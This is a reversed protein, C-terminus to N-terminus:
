VLGTPKKRDIEIFDSPPVINLSKRQSAFLYFDRCCDLTGPGSLTSMYPNEKIPRNGCRERAFEPARQQCSCHFLSM